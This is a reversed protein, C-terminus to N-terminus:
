RAAHEYARGVYGSTFGRLLGGYTMTFSLVDGVEVTKECDTVDVILHDSSAGVVSVGKQLPRLSDCDMDQRGIAAIARRRPGIDTYTGREGFANVGIEGIPYSPKVQVEVVEAELRVADGYMGDLDAGYATERGLVLAEGLRLNNIRGPMKGALLLPISSSNGGSIFPLQRGIQKEIKETVALFAALNEESPLVSGYCTLNFATGFLELHADREVMEATELVLAENQFFIGERLDGLDIMLVVKHVRGAEAAARSLARLTAQESNFSIEAARVVEEAQSPMPLRLLIREKGMGGSRALNEVRSDALYRCPSAAITKVMTEDACFVKTVFALETVGRENCMRSLWNANHSLKELDIVVKPYM